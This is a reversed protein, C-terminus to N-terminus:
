DWDVIRRGGSVGAARDHDVLFVADPVGLRDGDRAVLIAIDGDVPVASRPRDPWAPASASADPMLLWSDPAPIPSRSCGPGKAHASDEQFRPPALMGASERSGAM